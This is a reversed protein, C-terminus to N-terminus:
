IGEAILEKFILTMVPEAKAANGIIKSIEAVQLTEPVCMDTIVSVGFVPINMQRAVIVEPVTSMGVADAGLMRMMRYEAKTELQPGTVSVYVGEKLTTINHRAAIQKAKTIIQLSYPESMDPFRDGMINAGLLPNSPLFQSIHDNIIMLDSEQFSPNLGGAANSILLCEIGLLKMVRIPFTIEAMSYGEYYHFRGQMCVVNKGSIKGFILRSKHFEVTAEVFNPIESYPFEFEIEIEEALKGLGTGLVIGFQPVFSGIKAKLFEATETIRQM